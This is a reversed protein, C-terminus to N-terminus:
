DVNVVNRFTLNIREGVAKRTRTLCHQYDRQSNGWALLLSGHQLDIATSPERERHRARIRLRRTAGLSISAILPEGGLCAEDDAHWGMADAGDRYRNLLVFNFTAQLAELLRARLPVLSAFWGECAHARGAYPYDIHPEGCWAVLRPVAHWIGFLKMREDGWSIDKRLREFLADAMSQALFNPIYCM